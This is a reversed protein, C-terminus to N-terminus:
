RITLIQIYNLYTVTIFHFLCLCMMLKSFSVSWLSFIRTSRNDLRLSKTNNIIIIFPILINLLKLKYVNKFTLEWDFWNNTILLFYSVGTFDVCLTNIFTYMELPSITSKYLYSLISLYLINIYTFLQSYLKHSHISPWVYISKVNLVACNFINWNCKVYLNWM